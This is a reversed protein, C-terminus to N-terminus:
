ENKNYNVIDLIIFDHSGEKKFEVIEKESQLYFFIQDDEEEIIDGVKFLMNKQINGNDLWQITALFYKSKMKESM